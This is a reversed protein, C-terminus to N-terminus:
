GLPELRHKWWTNDPGYEKYLAKELSKWTEHTHTRERDYKQFWESSHIRELAALERANAAEWKDEADTVRAEAVPLKQQVRYIERRAAALRDRADRRLNTLEEMDLGQEDLNEFSEVDQAAKAASQRAKEIASEHRAKERLFRTRTGKTSSIAKKAMDLEDLDDQWQQIKQQKERFPRMLEDITEDLDDWDEWNQGKYLMHQLHLVQPPKIEQGKELAADIADCWDEVHHILHENDCNQVAMEYDKYVKTQKWTQYWSPCRGIMEKMFVKRLHTLEYERMARWYNQELGIRGRKKAQSNGPSATSTSSKNGSRSSAAQAYNGDLDKHGRGDDDVNDDPIWVAYDEVQPEQPRHNGEHLLAPMDCALYVPLCSVSDWDLIGTLQGTEVNVLINDTSLNDHWLMTQEAHQHSGLYKQIEEDADLRPIVWKHFNERTTVQPETHKRGGPTRKDGKDVVQPPALVSSTRLFVSDETNVPEHSYGRRAHTESTPQSGAVPTSREKLSIYAPERQHNFSDMNSDTLEEFVDGKPSMFATSDASSKHGHHTEFNDQEGGESPISSGGRVTLRSDNVVVPRGIASITHGNEDDDGQDTPFLRDHLQWLRSKVGSMHILRWIREREKPPGHQIAPFRLWLHESALNLRRHFWEKSSSFPGQNPEIEAGRDWFFRMSAIKGVQYRRGRGPLPAPYINGIQKFRSRYVCESYQALTKMILEKAELTIDRWCSSLPTGELRKMLIWECGIPNNASSSYAIVEPLLGRLTTNAATWRITAVESETKTRPCVPMTIKMVYGEDGCDVSYFKNYPGNWMHKVQYEEESGLAKKLVSVISGISPIREWKAIADYGCITWRIGIKSYKVPYSIAEKTVASKPAVSQPTVLNAIPITASSQSTEYKYDAGHGDPQSQDDHELGFLEDITTDRAIMPDLTNHLNQLNFSRSGSDSTAMQTDGEHLSRCLESPSPRMPLIPSNSEFNSTTIEDKSDNGQTPSYASDLKDHNQTDLIGNDNVIHVYAQLSPPTSNHMPPDAVEPSAPPHMKIGPGPSRLEPGTSLPGLGAPYSPGWPRDEQSDRKIDKGSHNMDQYIDVMQTDESVPRDSSVPNTPPVSDM